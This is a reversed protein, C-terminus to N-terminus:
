AVIVSRHRLQPLRELLSLREGRLILASLRCRLDGALQRAPKLVTHPPSRLVEVGLREISEDLHKSATAITFYTNTM